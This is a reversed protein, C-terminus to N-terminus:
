EEASGAEVAQPVEAPLGVDFAEATYAQMLAIGERFRAECYQRRVADRTEGDRGFVRSLVGYALYPVSSDPLPWITTSLNFQQWNPRCRGVLWLGSSISQTAAPVLRIRRYPYEEVLWMEPRGTANRWSPRLNDLEAPTTRYLWLGRLYVEEVALMYEPLDVYGMGQALDVKVLQRSVATEQCMDTIVEMADDLFEDLTYCDTTLGGPELLVECVRQYISYVTEM